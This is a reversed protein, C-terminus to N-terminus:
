PATKQDCLDITKVIRKESAGSNLYVLYLFSRVNNGRFGGELRENPISEEKGRM